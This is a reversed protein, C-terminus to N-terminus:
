QVVLHEARLDGVVVTVKSGKKISGSPNAFIIFYNKGLIPPRQNRLPGSKPSGVVLMKAGTAENILYAATGKEHLPAAKQEDVIRYRFDLMKDGATLRLPLIEIGATTQIVTATTQAVTSTTERLLNELTPPAQDEALCSTSLLTFCVIQTFARM